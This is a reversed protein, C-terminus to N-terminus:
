HRLIRRINWLFQRISLSSRPPTRAFQTVSTWFPMTSNHQEHRRVGTVGTQDVFRRLREEFRRRTQPPRPKCAPVSTARRAKMSHSKAMMLLVYAAALGLAAFSCSTLVVLSVSAGPVLLGIGFGLLAGICALIIILILDM